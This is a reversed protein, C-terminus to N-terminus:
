PEIPDLNFELRNPANSTIEATLSDASANAYKTALPDLNMKESIRAIEEPSHGKKQLESYEDMEFQRAITVMYRGAPAGDDTRYTTLKFTGDPGVKGTPFYRDRKSNMPYLTVRAGEAPKGEFLVIGEVAYVRPKGRVAIFYYIGGLLLVLVAASVGIKLLKRPDLRPGGSSATARAYAPAAVPKVPMPKPVSAAPPPPAPVAAVQPDSTDEEEVSVDEAEYDELMATAAERELTRSSPPPAETSLVVRRTKPLELLKAEAQQAEVDSSAAEDGDDTAPSAAVQQAEADSGAAVDGDDTAPSAAAQQVEADSNAAEDRDETAPSAADEVTVEPTPMPEPVVARAKRKKARRPPRSRNRKAPAMPEPQATVPMPEIPAAENHVAPGSSPPAQVLASDAAAAVPPPTGNREPAANIAAHVSNAAVDIGDDPGFLDIEDDDHTPKPAALQFIDVDPGAEPLPETALHTISSKGSHSRPGLRTQSVPKPPVLHPSDPQNAPPEPVPAIHPDPAPKGRPRFVKRCKACRVRKGRPLGHRIYLPATCFPCAEVSAIYLRIVPPPAEATFVGLCKGCRVKKGVPIEHAAMAITSRCFPCALTPPTAVLTLMEQCAPCRTWTRM